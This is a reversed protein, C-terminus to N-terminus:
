DKGLTKWSQCLPGIDRTYGHMRARHMRGTLGAYWDEYVWAKSAIEEPTDAMEKATADNPTRCDINSGPLGVFGEGKKDLPISNRYHLIYQHRTNGSNAYGVKEQLQPLLM